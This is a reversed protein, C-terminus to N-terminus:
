HSQTTAVTRKFKAPFQRAIGDALTDAFMLMHVHGDDYAKIDAAWDNKLEPSSRM